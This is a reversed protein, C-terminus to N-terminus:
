VLLFYKSGTQLYASFAGLILLLWISISVLYAAPGDALCMSELTCDSSFEIAERPYDVKNWSITQESPKSCLLSMFILM